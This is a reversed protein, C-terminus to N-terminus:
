VAQCFKHGCSLSALPAFDFCLPCEDEENFHLVAVVQISGEQFESLINSNISSEPITYNPDINEESIEFEEIEDSESQDENKNDDFAEYEKDKQLAL